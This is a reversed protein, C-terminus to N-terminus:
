SLSIFIFLQKIKFFGRGKRAVPNKILGNKDLVHWQVNSLKLEGEKQDDLPPTPNNCRQFPIIFLAYSNPSGWYYNYFLISELDRLSRDYFYFSLVLVCSFLVLFVLSIHKTFLGIAKLSRLLRKLM